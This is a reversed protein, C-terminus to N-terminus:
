ALCRYILPGQGQKECLLVYQAESCSIVLSVFEPLCQLDIASNITETGGMFETHSLFAFFFFASM